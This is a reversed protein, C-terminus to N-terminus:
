LSSSRAVIRAKVLVLSRIKISITAGEHSMKSSRSLCRAIHHPGGGICPPMLIAACQIDGPRFAAKKKENPKATNGQGRDLCVSIMVVIRVVVTPHIRHLGHRFCAVISAHFADGFRVPAQHIVQGTFCDTITTDGNIDIYM